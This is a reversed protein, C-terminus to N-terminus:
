FNQKMQQMEMTALGAIELSGFFSGGRGGNRLTEYNADLRNWAM